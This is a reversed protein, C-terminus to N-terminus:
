KSEKGESTQWTRKYPTRKSPTSTPLFSSSSLTMPSAGPTTSCMLDSAMNKMEGDSDSDNEEIDEENVDM